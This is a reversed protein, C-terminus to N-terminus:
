DNRRVRAILQNVCDSKTCSFKVSGSDPFISHLNDWTIIEGCFACTLKGHLFRNKLELSDLLELLDDDYVADVRKKDTM